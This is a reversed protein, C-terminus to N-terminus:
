NLKFDKPILLRDVVYLPGMLTNITEVITAPPYSSGKVQLQPQGGPAIGFTFPMLYTMVGPRNNIPYNGLLDNNLDNPYFVSPKPDTYKGYLGTYVLNERGFDWHYALITDSPVGGGGVEWVDWNFFMPSGRHSNWELVEDVTNFVAKHFADNTPAFLMKFSLFSYSCASPTDILEAYDKRSSPFVDGPDYGINEEYLQRYNKMFIEDSRRQLELFMSFREDNYLVQRFTTNPRVLVHNIPYIFGNSAPLANAVTGQQVGNVLLQGNEVHLYQRFFYDDYSTNGPTTNGYYYPTVRLAGYSLITATELNGPLVNLEEPTLRDRVAHYLVLSDANAQSMAAIAADTYGAAQMAEDSPALLTYRNTGKLMTDYRSKQWAKYFLHYSSKQLTENMDGYAPDVYPVKEGEPPPMFEDKHCGALAGLIILAPVFYRTLPKM